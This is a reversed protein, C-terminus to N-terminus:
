FRCARNMRREVTTEGLAIQVDITRALQPKISSGTSYRKIASSILHNEEIRCSVSCASSYGSLAVGAQTEVPAEPQRGVADDTLLM